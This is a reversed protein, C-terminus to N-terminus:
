SSHHWSITMSDESVSIRTKHVQLTEGVLVNLIVVNAVKCPFAKLGNRTDKPFDALNFVRIGVNISEATSEKLM